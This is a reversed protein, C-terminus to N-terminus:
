LVFPLLMHEIMMQQVMHFIRMPSGTKRQSCGCTSLRYASTRSYTVWRRRRQQSLTFTFSYFPIWIQWWKRSVRGMEVSRHQLVLSLDKNWLLTPIRLKCGGQELCMRVCARTGAHVFVCLCVCVGCGPPRHSTPIRTRLTWLSPCRFLIRLQQHSTFERWKWLSVTRIIQKISPLLDSSLHKFFFM